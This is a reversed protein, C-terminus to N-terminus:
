NENEYKWCRVKRDGLTFVPPMTDCKSTCFRCRHKYRCGYNQYDTHPPAFGTMSVKMGNEPIALIMDQTYPHLPNKLIEETPGYEVQQAAYLVCIHDSIRGAFMMDHTVCLLSEEKLQEFAEVVLSVRKEDLGKSPEDALILKAGASIGMAVMARQRM